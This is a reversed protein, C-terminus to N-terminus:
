RLSLAGYLSPTQYCLRASFWLGVLMELPDGDSVEGSVEALVSAVVGSALGSWGLPSPLETAEVPGSLERMVALWAALSAM